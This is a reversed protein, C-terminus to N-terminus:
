IRERMKGLWQDLISEMVNNWETWYVIPKVIKWLSLWHRLKCDASVLSHLFLLWCCDIRAVLKFRKKKEKENNNNNSNTKWSSFSICCNLSFFFCARTLCFTSLWRNFTSMRDSVKTVQNNVPRVNKQKEWKTHLKLRYVIPRKVPRYTCTNLM